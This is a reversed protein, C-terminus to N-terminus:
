GIIMRGDPLIAENKQKKGTLLAIGLSAPGVRGIFMTVIIMVKGLVKLNETVGATLGVTAFASVSEYLVNILTGSRDISHIVIVDAMVIIFGLMVITLAKYVQSKEIRHRLLRVEDYGRLNSLVAAFLAAFTTVKIGGATSGPSGGIFMIMCSIMKTISEESSIDVSAFGATRLNVSQFLSVNLKEPISMGNLLNENEFILFATMGLFLLIFSSGICIRSHFDLRGARHLRFRDRIKNAYIDDIVIFGLSGTFILASITVCVLTDDYFVCISSNGPIFGLLDFGANCFASISIFVSSWAGQTGYLPVFRIMLTVAGLFECTFTFGLIIRLLTKIDLYDSGSSEGIVLMNRFGMKGKFLLIFGSALTALGLGGIQILFIFVTQGFLTLQTYIDFLSLGTVCTASTAQFLATLFSVSEGKSSFPLMLLLTGILIIGIFSCVILRTPSINRIIKGTNKM